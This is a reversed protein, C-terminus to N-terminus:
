KNRVTKSLINRGSPTGDRRHETGVTNRGSPTGNEDTEM